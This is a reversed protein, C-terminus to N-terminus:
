KEYLVTELDRVVDFKFVKKWTVLQDHTFKTILKKRQYPVGNHEYWQLDKLIMMRNVSMYATQGSGNKMKMEKKKSDGSLAEWNYDAISPQSYSTSTKRFM